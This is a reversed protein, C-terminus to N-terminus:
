GPSIIFTKLRNVVGYISTSFYHSSAVCFYVNTNKNRNVDSEKENEIDLKEDQFKWLDGMTPFNPPALDAERLANVHNLYVRDIRKSHLFPNQSTIKALRNM